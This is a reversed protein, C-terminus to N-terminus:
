EYVWADISREYGVLEDPRFFIGIEREASEPSDSGHIVNRGMDLAYDGRITGPDADQPNTRGMMQRCVSIANDGEWVMALVPGSTIYDILGGYFPKGKHEGYHNECTERPITTFKMAVPKLGKRELRSVIEGMLGRQGADPKVMLYTREVAM